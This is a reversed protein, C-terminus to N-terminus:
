RIDSLLGDANRLGDSKWLVGTPYRFATRLRIWPAASGPLAPPLLIFDVGPGSIRGYLATTTTPPPSPRIIALLWGAPRKPLPALRPSM